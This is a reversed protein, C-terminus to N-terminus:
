LILGNLAHMREADARVHRFHPEAFELDSAFRSSVIRRTYTYWKQHNIYLTNLHNIEREKLNVIPISQHAHGRTRKTDNELFAEIYDVKTVVRHRYFPARKGRLIDNFHYWKMLFTKTFIYEKIAALSVKERMQQNALKALQNTADHVLDHHSLDLSSLWQSLSPVESLTAEILPCWTPMGYSGFSAVSGWPITHLPASILIHRFVYLQNPWDNYRGNCRTNFTNWGNM